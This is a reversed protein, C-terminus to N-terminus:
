SRSFTRSSPRNRSPGGASAWYRELASDLAEYYRRVIEVNAQSMM